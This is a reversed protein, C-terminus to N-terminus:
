CFCTSKWLAIRTEKETEGILLKSCRCSKIRAAAQCIKITVKIFKYCDTMDKSLVTEDLEKVIVSMADDYCTSSIETAEADAKKRAAAINLDSIYHSYCRRYYKADFAFVDAYPLMRM